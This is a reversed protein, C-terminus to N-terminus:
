VDVNKRIDFASNVFRIIPLICDYDKVGMLLIFKDNDSLNDFNDYVDSITAFMNERVETYHSCKLMFHAEDEIENLNCLTCLRNEVPIKNKFHRGKEIM